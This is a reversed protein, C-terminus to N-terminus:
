LDKIDNSTCSICRKRYSGATTRYERRWTLPAVTAFDASPGSRPPRLEACNQTGWTEIQSRPLIAIEWDSKGFIVRRQRVSDISFRRFSEARDVPSAMRLMMTGM